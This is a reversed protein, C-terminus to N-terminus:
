ESSLQKKQFRDVLEGLEAARKPKIVLSWGQDLKEPVILRDLPSLIERAKDFQEKVEEMKATDPTTEQMKGCFSSWADQLTGDAFPPRSKQVQVLQAVDLHRFKPTLDTIRAAIVEARQQPLKADLDKQIFKTQALTGIDAAIGNYAARF